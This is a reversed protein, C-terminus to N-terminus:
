SLHVQVYRTLVSVWEYACLLLLLVWECINHAHFHYEQSSVFRLKGLIQPHTALSRRQKLWNTSSRNQGCRWVVTQRQTHKDMGHLRDVGSVSPCHVYAVSKNSLLPSSRLQIDSNTQDPRKKKAHTWMRITTLWLILVAVFIMNVNHKEITDSYVFPVCITDICLGVSRYRSQIPTHTHTDPYWTTRFHHYHIAYKNNWSQSIWTLCTAAMLSACILSQPSITGDICLLCVCVCDFIIISICFFFCVASINYSASMFCYRCFRFLSLFLLHCSCFVQQFPQKQCYFEKAITHLISKTSLYTIHKHANRITGTSIKHHQHQQWQLWWKEMCKETMRYCKKRCVYYAHINCVM